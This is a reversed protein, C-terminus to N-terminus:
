KRALTRRTKRRTMWCALGMGKGTIAGGVGAAWMGGGQTTEWHTVAASESSISGGAERYNSRAARALTRALEVGYSALGVYQDPNRSLYYASFLRSVMESKSHRPPLFVMLRKIRGAAVDELRDALM